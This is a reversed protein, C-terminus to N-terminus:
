FFIYEYIIFRQLKFLNHKYNQIGEYEKTWGSPCSRKAPIMMLAPRNETYCRACPVNQNYATSPFIGYHTQSQYEAGAMSSGPFNDGTYVRNYQPDHPLCQYNVGGGIHM